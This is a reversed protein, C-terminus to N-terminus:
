GPNRQRWQKLALPMIVSAVAAIVGIISFIYQSYLIAVGVTLMQGPACCRESGQQAMQVGLLLSPATVCIWLVKGVRSNWAILAGIALLMYPGLFWLNLVDSYISLGERKGSFFVANVGGGYCIVGVAVGWSQASIGALPKEVADM